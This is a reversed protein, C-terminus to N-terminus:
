SSSFSKQYKQTYFQFQSNVKFHKRSYLRISTGITHRSIISAGNYSLLVLCQLIKNHCHKRFGRTVLFDMIKDQKHLAFMELQRPLLVDIANRVGLNLKSQQSGRASLVILAATEHLHSTYRSGAAWGSMVSISCPFICQREVPKARDNM